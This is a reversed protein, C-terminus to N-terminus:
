AHALRVESTGEVESARVTRDRGGRKAAYMAQDAAELLASPGWAAQLQAVGISVTVPANEWPFAHIARLVREALREGEFETSNSMLIAFEEGGLRGVADEKRVVNRLVFTAQQLVIDGAAHGFLDNHRKFHDVDLLLITLPKATQRALAIEKQLRLDFARRNDMGTLADTMALQQLRDNAEQLERQVRHLEQERARDLTIDMSVGGLHLQGAEDRVPFKYSRWYSRAGEASLTEEDRMQAEGSSLVELDNKRYVAALEPDFLEADTKGLADPRLISGFRQNFYMFRGAEDKLYAVFPGFDMFAQFRQQSAQVERRATETERIAKELALRQDHDRLRAAIQRALVTLTKRQLDTLVRPQQDFVCLAGIRSGDPRSFPVGAYFRLGDEVNVFISNCFRPDTRADEVELLEDQLVTRSCFTEQAPVEGSLGTNSALISLIGDHILTVASVDTGCIAAAVAVIDDLEPTQPLASFCGNVVESTQMVTRKGENVIVGDSGAPM